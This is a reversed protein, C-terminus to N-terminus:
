HQDLYHQKLLDEGFDNGFGRWVTHIHNADNQTNDYELLFEKTHIRYYHAEGPKIGGAWAFLIQNLDQDKLKQMQEAQISPQMRGLYLNILDILLQQQPANLESYRIGSEGEIAANRESATIIDAPATQSFIAKSRQSENLSTILDRGLEEEKELLRWGKLAGQPVNAPNAGMFSPTASVLKRDISTFNLSVHHGEFRWGWPGSESPLGFVSFFYNDPDRHTSNPGLGEIERLVGELERIGEVKKIGEPSMATKLVDTVLDRQSQNLQKLPLGKREIPVYHFNHRESDEFDFKAATLQEADLSSLLADVAVEMGALDAAVTLSNEPFDEQNPTSGSYALYGGLLIMSTLILFPWSKKM